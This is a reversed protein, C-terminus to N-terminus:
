KSLLELIAAARAASEAPTMPAATDVEREEVLDRPIDMLFRSPTRPVAKGRLVRAKARSLVLRECARTVGVYFLRREEELDGAGEALDTARADITRAHPLYGEECGVLFVVAFELGKSGHLTSLTVADSTEAEGDGFDLTLAQLFAYLGQQGDSIDSPGDSKERRALVSMVWEVNAWRKAGADGTPASARLERELGLGECLERAVESPPRKRGLLAARAAAVLNALSHCGERAARSVDDLADVREVTQWLSWRREAAHLALREFTTEGIGRPPYNLIRRLSIEDTPHLALKLYALVDKIEKREFFQTGGFVRHSIGQERLGQELLRSQANSRYLVAFDSPRYGDRQVLTRIERAVWAAEIEPSPAVVARVAEGGIRDTYLIKRWKADARKAIIANAVNLIPSCSRYNHELKIVRAGPFHREFDLINRVDAGRWGYIAQDDDGVACVNKRLAGLLRLLEFQVHNTDQYEDVLIHTFREQWRALADADRQWLHVVECVLDDFDFARYQRLAARYRPLIQAAMEDYEDSARCRSRPEIEAALSTKANSIRALIAQADFARDAGAERLLQKVLATQDGQDFITFTGGAAARERTLVMLGFSHFTSVVLDRAGTGDGRDALMRGVRDRMEGAAKNTFTLAVLARAPVGREVLRAIRHTVVRTKGSGAGALVLLPGEGHEVAERQAANLLHTAGM